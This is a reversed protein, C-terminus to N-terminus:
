MTMTISSSYINGINTSFVCNSNKDKLIKILEQTGDNSNDDVILIDINRYLKKHGGGKRYSTIRGLNNRGGSNSLGILQSKIPQRKSLYSKDLLKLQRQGPTVPNIRKFIM